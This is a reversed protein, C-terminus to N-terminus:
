AHWDVLVAPPASEPPAGLDVGTVDLVRARFWTVFESDSTALDAFAKEVDGEFWVLIFSGMPTEQLTWTERTVDGRALHADYEARRAGMTEAAFARADEEKGAQVPFMGNFVGM